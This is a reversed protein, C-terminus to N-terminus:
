FNILERFPSSAQSLPFGLQKTLENGLPSLSTPPGILVSVARAVPVSSCPRCIAAGDMWEKDKNKKGECGVDM